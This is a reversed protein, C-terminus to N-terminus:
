ERKRTLLMAQRRKHKEWEDHLFVITGWPSRHDVPLWRRVRRYQREVGDSVWVLWGDGVCDCHSRHRCLSLLWGVQSSDMADTSFHSCLFINQVHWISSNNKKKSGAHEHHCCRCAHRLTTSSGAAPRAQQETRQDHSYFKNKALFYRGFIPLSSFFTSGALSM